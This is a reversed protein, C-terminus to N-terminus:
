MPAVAVTGGLMMGTGGVGTPAGIPAGIFIGTDGVALGTSM